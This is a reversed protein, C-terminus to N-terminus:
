VCVPALVFLRSHPLSYLAIEDLCQGKLRLQHFQKKDKTCDPNLIQNSRDTPNTAMLTCCGNVIAAAPTVGVM